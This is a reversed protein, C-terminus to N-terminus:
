RLIRQRMIKGSFRHGDGNSGPVPKEPDHAYRM